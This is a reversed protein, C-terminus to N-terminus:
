DEIEIHDAAEKVAAVTNDFQKKVEREVVASAAIGMGVSGFWLLAKALGASNKVAPATWRSVIMGTGLSTLASLVTKAFPLM